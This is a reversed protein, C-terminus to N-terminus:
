AGADLGLRERFLGDRSLPFTPVYSHSFAPVHSLTLMKVRARDQMSGNNVAGGDRGPAGGGSLARRIKSRVPASKAAFRLAPYIRLVYGLGRVRKNHM